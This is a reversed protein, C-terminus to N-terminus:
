RGSAPIQVGAKRYLNLKNRLTRLSIGLISAARTRNGHCHKLTDLILQQVVDAVTHGVSSRPIHITGHEDSEPSLSPLRLLDATIESNRALVVARQMTCELEHVNGPWAYARLMKRAEYTLAPPRVDNAKAHKQIFLAGLKDINNPRKRLPILDISLISLRNYLDEQVNGQRTNRM